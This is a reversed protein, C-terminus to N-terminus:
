VLVVDDGESLRLRFARPLTFERSVRAGRGIMSSILRGGVHLITAGPAVISREIETGEIRAGEGVSTYAGIFSDRIVAGPGIVVPGYIVSDRIDATPDIAVRGEIRNTAILGPPVEPVLRNLAVRNLELLDACDGNYRVWGDLAATRVEAGDAAFRRGASPLDSPVELMTEQARSLAGAGFVGVEAGFVVLDPTGRDLEGVLPLVPADLLGNAPQLLFPSDGILPAVARLTSALGIGDRCLAYDIEGAFDYSRVANRVDILADAEGAVVVRSVDAEFLSDLAHQVIPRNAVLELAAVRAQGRGAGVPTGTADVVM